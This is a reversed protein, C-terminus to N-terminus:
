IRYEVTVSDNRQNIRYTYGDIHLKLIEDGENEEKTFNTNFAISTYLRENAQFISESALYIDRAKIIQQTMKSHKIIKTCAVHSFTAINMPEGITPKIPPQIGRSQSQGFLQASSPLLTM